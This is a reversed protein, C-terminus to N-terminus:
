ALRIAKDTEDDIRGVFLTPRGRDSYGVKQEALWEPLDILLEDETLEGLLKWLQRVTEEDSDDWRETFAEFDACDNVVFGQM